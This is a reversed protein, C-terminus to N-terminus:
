KKMDTNVTHYQTTASYRQQKARLGINYSKFLTLMIDIINM